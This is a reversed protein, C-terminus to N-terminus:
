QRQNREGADREIIDEEDTTKGGGRCTSRPDGDLGVIWRDNGTVALIVDFTADANKFLYKREEKTYYLGGIVQRQKILSTHGSGEIKV